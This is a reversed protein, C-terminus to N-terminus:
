IQAKDKKISSVITSDFKESKNAENNIHAGGIRDLIIQYVRALRQTCEEPNIENTITTVTFKQM